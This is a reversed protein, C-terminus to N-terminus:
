FLTVEMGEGFYDSYSYSRWLGSGSDSVTTRCVSESTVMPCHSTDSLLGADPMRMLCLVSDSSSTLTKKWLVQTLDSVTRRCHRITSLPRQRGRTFGSNLSLPHVVCTCKWCTAQASDMSYTAWESLLGKKWAPNRGKKQKNQREGTRASGPCRANRTTSGTNKGAPFGFLETDLLFLEGVRQKYTQASCQECFPTSTPDPHTWPVATIETTPPIM